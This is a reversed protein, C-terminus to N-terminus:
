HRKPGCRIRRKDYNLNEIVMVTLPIRSRLVSLRLVFFSHIESAAEGGGSFDRQADEGGTSGRDDAASSGGNDHTTAEDACQTVDDPHGTSRFASRHRICCSLAFAPFRLLSCFVGTCREADDNIGHPLMFAKEVAGHRPIVPVIHIEGAVASPVDLVALNWITFFTHEHKLTNTGFM